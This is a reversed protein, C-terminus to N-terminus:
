KDRNPTVGRIECSSRDETMAWSDVGETEMVIASSCRDLTFRVEKLGPPPSFDAGNFTLIRRCTSRGAHVWDTPRRSVKGNSRVDLRHWRRDAVGVNNILQLVLTGSGHNVKLSPTGGILELLFM